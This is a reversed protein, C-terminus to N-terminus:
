NFNPTVYEIVWPEVDVTLNVCKDPNGLDEDDFGFAHDADMRYVHGAAFTNISLSKTALYLAATKDTQDTGSMGLIVQPAIGPFVNYAFVEVDAVTFDVAYKYQNTENLTINMEKDNFWGEKLGELYSWVTTSSIPDSVSNTITNGFFTSTGGYNNVALHNLVLSKYNRTGDDAANYSFAGIELRAVLPLVNVEAEYVNTHTDPADQDTGQKVLPEEGVMLLDTVDQQEAINVTLAKLAGENEPEADEAWTPNGVVIVKSVAADLYHFTPINESAKFTRPLKDTKEVDDVKYGDYFQGAGDVFFITFNNLTARSGTQVPTQVGRAGLAQQVNALKITVSKPMKDQNIDLNSESKDCSSFIMSAALAMLFLSKRKM